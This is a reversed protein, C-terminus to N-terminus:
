LEHLYYNNSPTTFHKTSFAGLVSPSQIYQCSRVRIAEAVSYTGNMYEPARHPSPLPSFSTSNSLFVLKLRLIGMKLRKDAGGRRMKLITVHLGQHYSAIDVVVIDYGLTQDPSLPPDM